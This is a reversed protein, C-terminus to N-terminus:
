DSDDFREKDASSKSLYWKEKFIKQKHTVPVHQSQRGEIGESKPYRGSDKSFKYSKYRMSHQKKGSDKSNKKEPYEYRSGYIIEGKEPKYFKKPYKKVKSSVYRTSGRNSDEEEDEEIDDHDRFSLHDDEEDDFYKEHSPAEYNESDEDHDYYSEETDEDKNEEIPKEEVKHKHPKPPRETTPPATSPTEIPQLQSRPPPQFRNQSVPPHAPPPILNQSIPRPTPYYVNASRIISPQKSNDNYLWVIGTDGYNQIERSLNRKTKNRADDTINFGEAIWLSSLIFVIFSWKM